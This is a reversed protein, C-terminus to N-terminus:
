TYLAQILEVKLRGSHIGWVLVSSRRPVVMSKGTTLVYDLDDRERTIWLVGATCTLRVPAKPRLTVAKTANAAFHFSAPLASRKGETVSSFDELWEDYVLTTSRQRAADNNRRLILSFWDRPWLRVQSTTHMGANSIPFSSAAITPRGSRDTM